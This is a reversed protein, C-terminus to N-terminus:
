TYNTQHLTPRKLIHVELSSPVQFFQAVTFKELADRCRPTLKPLDKTIRNNRKRHTHTHTDVYFLREITEVM